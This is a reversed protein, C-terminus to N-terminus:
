LRLLFAMWLVLATYEIVERDAEYTYTIRVTLYGQSSQLYVSCTSINIYGTVKLLVECRGAEQVLFSLSRASVGVESLLLM